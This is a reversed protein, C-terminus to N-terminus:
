WENKVLVLKQSARTISTYLHRLHEERDFPFCEEIVLVKSYESGQAKHASIASGYDFELPVENVLTKMRMLVSEAQPTLFKSGTELFTKDIPIYGYNEGDTSEFNARVIPVKKPFWRYKVPYHVNDVYAHKIWGMTGNTLPSDDGFSTINWHNGLSIMKDGPQPDGDLGKLMRVRENIEKCKRNTACIIQSSYEESSAWLLMGDTLDQPRIVKVQEGDHEPIYKGERIGMSLRIIESDKAQRMVETLFVHPHDLVHNDQDKFIPPIQFPDGSAIVFINHSLLLNWMDKPLMSVEDVVIVEYRKDLRLKPKQTFTGDANKHFYYLLKHATTANPNDKKRLVESAKGTLSVYAVEDPALGM